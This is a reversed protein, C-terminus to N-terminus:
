SVQQVARAGARELLFAADVDAAQKSLYELSMRLMEIEVFLSPNRDTSTKVLEMEVRAARIYEEVSVLRKLAIGIRALTLYEQAFLLRQQNIVTIRANM